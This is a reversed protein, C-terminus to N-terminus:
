RHMPTLSCAWFIACSYRNAILGLSACARALIMIFGAEGTEEAGDKNAAAPDKAAPSAPAPRWTKTTVVKPQTGMIRKAPDVASVNCSRLPLIGSHSSATRLDARTM